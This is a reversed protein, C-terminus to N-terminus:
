QVTLVMTTNNTIASVGNSSQGTITITYTGPPTPLPHVPGHQYYDYLPKCATTGLATVLGVMAVLALRQLWRRRRAGWALGGLGLMGPLLIAWAIPKSGNTHHASPAVLTTVQEQTQLLMSSVPPCASVPSGSPCSAPTTPLIEVTEPTFTCSAESPLSSCSLTVFMPATLAANDEPVVTVAITGAQGATLSLPLTSPPVPALTLAFNPTSSTQGTVNSTASASTLHTADGAYVARLAHDGGALSLVPTAQGEANLAAEALERDGDKIVIAGSAPLGDAGAVLVSATAQTRGGQESTEVTLTTHTVIQQAQASAPLLALALLAVGLVAVLERRNWLMRAREIKEGLRRSGSPRPSGCNVAEAYPLEPIAILRPGRRNLVRVQV